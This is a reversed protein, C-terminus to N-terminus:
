LLGQRGRWSKWPLNMAALLSLCLPMRRTAQAVPGRDRTEITHHLVSTRGLESPNLAFADRCRLVLAQLCHIEECSIGSQGDRGGGAATPQISDPEDRGGVTIPVQVLGLEDRGGATPVQVLGLEDRGGATPVQVLGLEDRGGATPVQVLGLEDRGGVTPVQVLGLEDRGGVTPVQVLGLEDRGSGTPVQVSVLEDRGCRPTLAPCDAGIRLQKWVGLSDETEAIQASEERQGDAMTGETMISMVESIPELRGIQMARELAVAEDSYNLVRVPVGDVTPSVLAHAMM